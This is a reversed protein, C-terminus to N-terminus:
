SAGNSAQISRCTTLGDKDCNAGYTVCPASCVCSGDKFILYRGLYCDTPPITSWAGWM